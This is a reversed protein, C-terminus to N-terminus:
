VIQPKFFLFFERRSMPKSKDKKKEAEDDVDDDLGDLSVKGVFKAILFFAYLPGILFVGTLVTNSFEVTYINQM